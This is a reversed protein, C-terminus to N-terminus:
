GLLERLVPAAAQAMSSFGLDNPHCGDVTGEDGCMQMLAPGDLFRVGGDGAGAAREFTARVIERRRQEDGSLTFRPRSLILIPLTPQAGRVARFLAGHTAELHAPDPANHDYDLVFASMDCQKLYDTMVTEGRASGSFGLNRHDAGLMRSLANTYALGPRSACGGQTISSGYFVIPKKVRYPPAPLLFADERLGVRLASVNSYLPFHITIERINANPLDVAAAYGDAIDVPPMFCGIFRNGAYLDFGASGTFAFHPMRGVGPMAASIVVYPSDTCFRLRGGATNRYLGAVGENVRRAIEGPMRCFAGEETMLGHVSFPPELADYFRVAPRAAGIKELLAADPKTWDQM